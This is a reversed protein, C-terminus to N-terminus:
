TQESKGRGLHVGAGCLQLGGGSVDIDAPGPGLCPPAVGTRGVVVEPQVPREHHPVVGLVPAAALGVAVAILLTQGNVDTAKDDVIASRRVDTGVQAQHLPTETRKSSNMQLCAM